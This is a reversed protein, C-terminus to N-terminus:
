KGRRGEFARIVRAENEVHRTYHAGMRESRDGLAAAVDGADAGERRLNAAYTVRLGHLTIGKGVVGEHELRKLFHSVATQMQREDDWPTGDAKTAINISTRTLRDLHSQLESVVPIWTRENNKRAVLRFCKGSRPDPQYESWQLAAITQGRFGAYRALMIPTLLHAPAREQAMDWEALSWERNANPDARHAKEIGKAPNTQMKGRKVAETFMASLASIMKDAFRPWKKKACTDRTEYLAPQTITDLPADWEPALYKFAAQYEKKTADSLRQFRPCDNEYWQVLAGLTGEPFTHRLDRKRRANYAGMLDPEGLRRALDDKTGEFGKLLPDGTERIYVYWKGRAKVINLGELKVKVVM